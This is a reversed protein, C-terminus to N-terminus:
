LRLLRRRDARGRSACWGPRSALVPHGNLFRRLDDALETCSAYRDDRDRAMAKLCIRELAAPIQSNRSTPRPPTETLTQTILMRAVGHFPLSGTILQYLVVGLSFIDTRGDLDRSDDLAEPAFEARLKQEIVAKMSM